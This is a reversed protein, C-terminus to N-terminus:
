YRYRVCVSLCCHLARGLSRGLDSGTLKAVRHCLLSVGTLPVSACLGAGDYSPCCVLDQGQLM